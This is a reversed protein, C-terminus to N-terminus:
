KRGVLVPWVLIAASVLLLAFSLAEVINNQEPYITGAYASLVVSLGLFPITLGINRKMSKSVSYFSYLETLKLNRRNEPLMDLIMIGAVALIAAAVGFKLFGFQGSAWDPMLEIYSYPLKGPILLYFYAIAVFLMIWATMALGTFNSGQAVSMNEYFAEPSVSEDKLAVIQAHVRSLYSIHLFCAGLLLIPLILGLMLNIM